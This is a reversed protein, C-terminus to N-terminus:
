YGFGWEIGDAQPAGGYVQNVISWRNGTWELLVTNFGNPSLVISASGSFGALVDPTIGVPVPSGPQRWVSPLLALAATDFPLGHQPVLIIRLACDAPSGPVPRLLLNIQVRDGTKEAPALFAYNVKTTSSVGTVDSWDEVFGGHGLMLDIIPERNPNLAQTKTIDACDVIVFPRGM